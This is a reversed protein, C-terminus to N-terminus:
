FSIKIGFQMERPSNAQSRVQGFTNSTVTNAAGGWRVRNFLNFAEWRFEVGAGERIRFARAVSINENLGWPSRVKPNRVVGTGFRGRLVVGKLSSGSPAAEMPKKDFAATDWWSDVFPDFKEGKVPARWGNYDLVTLRNGAGSFIPLQYGPLITVPTGSFYNQIGAVRWGGALLAAPGTTLWRRGKGFPLEYTYNMKFSHTQDNASLSKELSRNYQDMARTGASASESDSFMKSLVYSGLLTLGSSYRKEVKVILAHYSSNGSRDGGDTGTDINRYHPYPRLSQAVSGKFGSFPLTYGGARAAASNINQNMLNIATQSGMRSVMDYFSQTNVQNINVLSTTLHHGQTANYGLELVLSGPLQRQMNLNWALYEPPRGADFSQWFPPVDDNLLTPDVFPPKPLSPLGQDWNFVPTINQDTSSFTKQNVFGQFHSSTGTNKIGGFYRTFSARLVTRPELAYALGLRPSFAWPWGSFMSRKGTRGPGNGAFIMAGLRGDAGPNPVNPDFNSFGDPFSGEVTPPTYEYRVGYNITLKRSLRWDDQAYLSYYNWQDSVTRYTMVSASSVQGLLLSAFGNGSTGSQDLPVSTSMRSFNFTGAATHWGYGNYHDRQLSFGFKMGHAGRFFNLDDTVTQGIQNSGGYQSRGWAAYDDMAMRPMLLDANPANKIGIKTGWGQNRVLSAQLRFFDNMGFAFHNLIQPSITRDWSIRYVHSTTNDTNFDNLPVPLGPPSGLPLVQNQGWYFLFSLRDKATLNHDAKVSFKNWPSISGGAAGIFNNRPNPNLIGAPDPQNPQMTALKIVNKAVASFRGIPIRSNPFADRVFGGKGDPRTSAPDYIPILAGRRDKWNSFNGEYMEPLPITQFNAVPGTRNRFGEYSVFFFSKDKGNYLKPIYWPGGLTAGFDSQKLVRRKAGTANNFFNNADMADNRLFEYGSGHLQNGGSKSVMSIVGGAVRGYEAKFANTDLSLETVADPSLSNVTTIFKQDGPRAPTSSIGDQTLDWGGEQGGGIVINSTGKAEPAILALDIPSRLRGGVILPLDEVFKSTVATAVRATDTQLQAARASVDISESVSGVRLAADVRVTSGATIVVGSQVVTKFGPAAIEVRYAGVALQPITYDGQSTTQSNRETRTDVHVAKIAAAPVIAGSEDTVTGTITGRDSQPWAATTVFLALSLLGFVRKM